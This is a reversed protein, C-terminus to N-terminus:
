TRNRNFDHPKNGSYIVFNYQKFFCDVNKFGSSSLWKLQQELTAPHDLAMRNNIQTLEEKTLDTTKLYDQWRKQYITENSENPGLALDANIFYGGPTLANFIKRFLKQKSYNYLHHISMASVILPFYEPIPDKDYDRIYFHVDKTDSFRDYAKELMHESIDLLHPESCPFHERIISSVFGTGAGLDLFSFKQQPLFYGILELITSYFNDFCYIIKPRSSNYNQAADNFYKKIIDM